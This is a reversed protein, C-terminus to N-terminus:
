VGGADAKARNKHFMERERIKSESICESCAGSLTYRPADHGNKCLKGTRYTRAGRKLAEKRTTAKM